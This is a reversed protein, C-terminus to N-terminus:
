GVKLAGGPLDPNAVKPGSVHIPVLHAPGWGGGPGDGLRKGDLFDSGMVERSNRGTFMGM